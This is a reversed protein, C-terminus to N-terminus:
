KCELIREDIELGKHFGGSEKLSCAVGPRSSLRMRNNITKLNDSKVLLIGDDVFNAIVEGSDNYFITSREIFDPKNILKFLNIEKKRINFNFHSIAGRKTLFVRRNNEIVYGRPLGKPSVKIYNESDTRLQPIIAKGDYNSTAGSMNSEIKVFDHIGVNVISYTEGIRSPSFIIGDNNVAIAGSLFLGSTTARNGGNRQKSVSSSYTTYPSVGSLSVSDNISAKGEAKTIDHDYSLSMNNSLSSSVMNSMRTLGNYKSFWARNNGRQGWISLPINLGFNVSVNDRKMSYSNLPMYNFSSSLSVGDVNESYGLSISNISKSNYLDYHSASLNIIGIEKVPINYGASINYKVQNVEERCCSDITTYNKNQYTMSMYSNQLSSSHTFSYGLSGNKRSILMGDSNYFGNKGNDNQLSIGSYYKGNLFSVEPNLWTNISKRVASGVLKDRSYTNDGVYLYYSADKGSVRKILAKSIIKSDLTETGKKILMIVDFNWSIVPIDNLDIDGQDVFRSYFMTGNQFLQVESKQGSYFSVDIVGNAVTSSDNGISVIVGDIYGIGFGVGPPNVRGIKVNGHKYDKDFYIDRIRHERRSYISYDADRYFGHGRLLYNDLNAGFEYNVSQSRNIVDNMKYSYHSFDYNVFGGFGGSIKENEKTIHTGYIGGKFAIENTGRRFSYTNKNKLLVYEDGNIEKKDISPTFEFVDHFDSKRLYLEQGSSYFGHVDKVFVNDVFISYISEGSPPVNETIAMKLQEETIGNLELLSSEIFRFNEAHSLSSVFFLIIAIFKFMYLGVRDIKM